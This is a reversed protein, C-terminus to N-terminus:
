AKLVRIDGEALQPCVVPHAISLLPGCLSMHMAAFPGLPLGRDLGNGQMGARSLSGSLRSSPHGIRRRSNM